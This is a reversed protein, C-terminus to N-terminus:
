DLFNGNLQLYEDITLGHQWDGFDDMIEEKFNDPSGLNSEDDSEMKMILDDPEPTKAESKPEKLKKLAPEDDSVSDKRKLPPPEDPDKRNGVNNFSQNDEQQRCPPKSSNREVEFLKKDEAPCPHKRSDKISDKENQHCSNTDCDINEKARLRENMESNAVIESNRNALEKEANEKIVDKLGITEMHSNFLLLRRFIDHTLNYRVDCTQYTWRTTISHKLKAELQGHTFMKYYPQRRPLGNMILELSFSYLQVYQLFEIVVCCMQHVPQNDHDKKGALCSLKGCPYNTDKKPTIKTLYGAMRTIEKIYDEESFYAVKEPKQRAATVRKPKEPPPPPPPTHEETQIAIKRPPQKKLPKIIEKVPLQPPPPLPPSPEVTPIVATATVAPSLKPQNPTVLAVPPTSKSPFLPRFGQTNQKKPPSAITPTTTTNLPCTPECIPGCKQVRQQIPQPTPLYTPSVTAAAAAAANQASVLMQQRINSAYLYRNYELEAAWNKYAAYNQPYIINSYMHQSSPLEFASMENSMVKESTSDKEMSYPKDMSYSKEITYNKEMSYNMPISTKDMPYYQPQSRLDM